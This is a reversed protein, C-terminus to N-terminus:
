FSCIRATLSWNWLFFGFQEVTWLWNCCASNSWQETALNCQKVLTLFNKNM